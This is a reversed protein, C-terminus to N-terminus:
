GQYFGLFPGFRSRLGRVKKPTAAAVRYEVSGPTNLFTGAKRTLTYDAHRGNRTLRFTGTCPRTQGVKTWRTCRVHIRSAITAPPHESTAAYARIGLRMAKDPDLRTPSPAAITSPVAVALLAAATLM